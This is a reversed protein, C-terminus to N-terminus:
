DEKNVIKNLVKNIDDNYKIELLTIHKDECFKRKIKDHLKQKYFHEIGKEKSKHLSIFMNPRYHQEGQYEICMNYDPLYFDFPLPNKDRCDTFRKQYVFKVNKNELWYKITKEGNSKKCYPCGEGHLHSDPTQWFTKKCHNCLIEVKTRNNIYKVFSYNYKNKHINISEEIFKEQSKKYKNHACNPCGSGRMHHTPLQEFFMKCKKCWITVPIKTNVYVSKSYDYKDGHIAKSKDIFDNIVFTQYLTIKKIACKQCGCGKLHHRPSQYFFDKCDNCWIKIKADENIYVVQDYNYKNGHVAKAEEIFSETTRNHPGFCFPCRHGSLHGDPTQYFWKKCKKCFIKVKIKNGLYEVQSYDYNNGHISKADEIFEELTKRRM